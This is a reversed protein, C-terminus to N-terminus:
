LGAEGLEQLRAKADVISMPKVSLNPRNKLIELTKKIAVDDQVLMDSNSVARKFANKIESKRYTTTESLASTVRFRLLIYDQLNKDKMKENYRRENEAAMAAEENSLIMESVKNQLKRDVVKEISTNRAAEQLGKYYTDAINNIFEPTVLEENHLLSIIVQKYVNVIDSIVGGTCTYFAQIIEKTLEIKQQTWQLSFLNSLINSIKDIENCYKNAKILVGTRRATRRKAFLRTYADETGAVAIAVGTENVLTMLAELSNERTSVTDMLEIEDIIICGISFKEVFERIKMYKNGLGKQKLVEAEYIPVLNHLADDIAKGINAYLVQFNSHATANVHLYVIQPFADFTGENHIIVQPYHSLMTNIATSKGCGSTGLLTFGISTNSIEKIATKQHISQEQNHITVPINVYKDKVIRRRKYSSCLARYFEREVMLQFPLPIRFDDLIEVSDIKEYESMEALEERSPANVDYTCLDIIADVGFPAPLAEILPNGKYQVKAIYKAHVIKDESLSYENDYQTVGNAEKPAYIYNHIISM